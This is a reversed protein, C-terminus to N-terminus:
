STPSAHLEDVNTQVWDKMTDFDHPIDEVPKGVLHALNQVVVAGLHSIKDNVLDRGKAKWLAADPNDGFAVGRTKDVGDLSPPEIRDLADSRPVDLNFAPSLLPAAEDRKTLAPGLDFRERMTKLFATHHFTDRIVTGKATYPSIVMAPVRIGFRDFKFGQDGKSDDPIPAAPPAVHDFCGGGEDFLVLLATKEWAPSNRVANYIEALLHEGTRIDTPPHYDNLEGFLMCPEVWSFAPLEGTACDEFFNAMPKTHSKWMKKHKAGGLSLSAMSIKQAPDIYVSWPLGKDEFLSFVSPHEFDWGYNVVFQNDIRGGNTGCFFFNRNPTTCTPVECHWHTFVSYEQALTNIIPATEPTFVDGISQMEEPTPTRGKEWKFTNYFDLAAGRMTPEDGEEPANYPAEFYNMFQSYPAKDENTAPNYKGYIQVNISGFAEGPDPIPANFDTSPKVTVTGEPYELEITQNRIGDEDNLHPLHGLLNDFSRNEFMVVIWHDIQEM